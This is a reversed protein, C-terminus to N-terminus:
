LVEDVLGYEIAMEPSLWSQRRLIIKVQKKTLNSHSTYFKVYQKMTIDDGFSHDKLEEYNGSHYTWFPHILMISNPTIYRKDCSCSIITAGSVAAGEIISNVATELTGITDAIAFASAIDGGDSNIHLWIPTSAGNVVNDVLLKRNLKQLEEILVLASAQSVDAYFYIHNDIVKISTDTSEM